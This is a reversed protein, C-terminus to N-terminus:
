RNFGNVYKQLRQKEIPSLYPDKLHERIAMISLFNPETRNCRSFHDNVNSSSLCKIRIGDIHDSYRFSELCNFCFKPIDIAHNKDKLHKHLEKKSPFLERCKWCKTPTPRYKICKCSPNGLIIGDLREVAYEKKCYECTRITVTMIEM